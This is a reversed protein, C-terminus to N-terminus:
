KKGGGKQEMENKKTGNRLEKMANRHIHLDHCSKVKNTLRIKVVIYNLQQINNVTEKILVKDYAGFVNSVFRSCM